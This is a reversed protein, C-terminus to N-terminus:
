SVNRRNRCFKRVSIYDPWNEGKLIKDRISLSLTIKFCKYSEAVTTLESCGKIPIGLDDTCYKSLNEETEDLSCGGVFIDYFKEPVRFLSCSSTRTGVIKPTTRRRRRGALEWGGDGSDLGGTAGGGDGGRVDGDGNSVGNLAGTVGGTVNIDNRSGRSLTSNGNRFDPPRPAMLRNGQPQPGSPRPPGVGHVNPMFVGAPMPQAPHQFRQPAQAVGSAVAQNFPVPFQQVPVSPVSKKVLNKIETCEKLVKDLYEAKKDFSAIKQKLRTVEERLDNILDAVVEFGSSPPLARLGSAVFQPLAISKQEAINFADLADQIERQIKGANKRRVITEQVLGFIFDKAEIISEPTYFAHAINVIEDNSTVSRATSLYCLVNSLVLDTMKDAESLM